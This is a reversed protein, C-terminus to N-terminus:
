EKENGNNRIIPIEPLHNKIKEIQNCVEDLYFGNQGM